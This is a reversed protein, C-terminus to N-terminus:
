RHVMLGFKELIAAARERLEEVDAGDPSWDSTMGLRDLKGASLENYNLLDVREVDPLSAIFRGSAEITDPDTNFGPILAIRIIIREGSESLRGVNELILENAVGTVEEHRASDPHKLDCLFVDTFRRAAEISEWPACCSTDVATHLGREKCSELAAALFEPQALPEGGSFTVGGGSEEYFVRDLAAHDAIQRATIQRGVVERAGAPCVETCAGCATCITRDTLPMGDNLSVADGTCADVCAGCATCRSRLFSLQPDPAIGEPNHCWPCSLPCGKLFFTTRIGPGDHLAFRKIDFITGRLTQDSEESSM